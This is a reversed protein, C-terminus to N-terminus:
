DAANAETLLREAAAAISRWTQLSSQDGIADAMECHEAIRDLSKSGYRCTIKAAMDVILQEDVLFRGIQNPSVLDVPCVFVARNNIVPDYIM